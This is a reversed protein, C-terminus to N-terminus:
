RTALGKLASGLEVAWEIEKPHHSGDADIIQSCHDLVLRAVKNGMPAGKLRKIALSVDKGDPAISPLRRMAREIM